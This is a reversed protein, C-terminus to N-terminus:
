ALVGAREFQALREIIAEDFFAEMPSWQNQGGTYDKMGRCSRYMVPEVIRSGLQVYVHPTHLIVEGSVAPGAKNSRVEFETAGIRKALAKLFRKGTRHFLEKNAACHLSHRLQYLGTLTAVDDRFTDRSM